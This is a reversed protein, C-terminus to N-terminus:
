GRPPARETRPHAVVRGRPRDPTTVLPASAAPRPLPARPASAAQVIRSTLRALWRLAAAGGIAVAVQVVVGVVLVHHHVLDGLPSGTVLRELVEQGAFAGVQVAALLRALPAFGEPVGRGSASCARVLLAAIGALALILAAEGAAPLYDHGTGSLIVDRHHPDPVALAYSVTHGLLLGAVAFAFVPLGRVRPTVHVISRRDHGSGTITRQV